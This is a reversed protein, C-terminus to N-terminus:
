PLDEMEDAIEREADVLRALMSPSAKWAIQGKGNLYRLADGSREYNRLIETILQTRTRKPNEYRRDEYSCDIWFRLAADMRFKMAPRAELVSLDDANLLLPSARFPPFRALLPRASVKLSLAPRPFAHFRADVVGWAGEHKQQAKDSSM